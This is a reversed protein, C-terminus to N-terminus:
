APIVFNACPFGSAAVDVVTGDGVAELVPVLNAEIHRELGQAFGRVSFAHGAVIEPGHGLNATVSGAGAAAAILELLATATLLHQVSHFCKDGIVAFAEM